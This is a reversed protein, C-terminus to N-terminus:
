SATHRTLNGEPFALVLARVLWLPVLCYIVYIQFDNLSHSPQLLHLVVRVLALVYMLIYTWRSVLRTYSYLEQPPRHAFALRGHLLYATVVSAVTAGFLLHLNFVRPQPIELFDWILAVIGVCLALGAACPLLIGDWSV